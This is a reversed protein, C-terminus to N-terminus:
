PCPKGKGAEPEIIFSVGEQICHPSIGLREWMQRKYEEVSIKRSEVLERLRNAEAKIQGIIDAFQTTADM